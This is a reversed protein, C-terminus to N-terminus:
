KVVDKMLKLSVVEQELKVNNNLMYEIVEKYEDYRKLEKMRYIDNNSLPHLCSDYAPNSLEEAGMSFMGFQKGTIECLNHHIWFGGADIDGFHLYNVEPNCACILKIFERQDRNAYGGMYFIVSDESMYRLYSTRNEITMFTKAFLKVDDINPLESAKFEIGGDFGSIDMDVGNNRIIAKGKICLKQPEKYIHYKALIEDMVETTETNNSDDYERLLSCVPQLTTNEFCKSDGYLKMSVERIYLEEQNNEVFAIAQFVAGIEDINKPIQRKVLKEGLLECEKSCIESANEYQEILSQLVGLKANKAVYGYKEELYSEITDIKSDVLYICIIQTGFKERSVSVFGQDILQEITANLADIEDFDGNNANYKKYIKEPKIQTRRSTKNDGSDKKSKRYNDVLYTLVKEEYNM